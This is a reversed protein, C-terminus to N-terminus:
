SCCGRKGSSRSQCAAPSVYLGDNGAPFSPVLVTFSSCSPSAKAKSHNREDVGFDNWSPPLTFSEHYEVRLTGNVSLAIYDDDVHSLFYFIQISPSSSGRSLDRHLPLLLRSLLSSTLHSAGNIRDSEIGQTDRWAIM